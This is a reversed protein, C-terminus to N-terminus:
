LHEGYGNDHIQYFTFTSIYFNVKVPGYSRVLEPCLPLASSHLRLLPKVGSFKHSTASLGDRFLLIAM